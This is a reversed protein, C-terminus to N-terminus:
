RGGGELPPPEVGEAEMEDIREEYRERMGKKQRNRILWRLIKSENVGVIIDNLARYVSPDNVLQAVTGNGSNIKETVLRLNEIMAELDASVKTAYEEDSLLKNLLGEGERIETVLDGLEGTTTELNGVAGSFRQSLEADHILDALLGEGHEVSDLLAELRAVASEVREALTPDNFLRGLTGEGSDIKGLISDLSALTSRLSETMEEGEEDGATLEGLLGEGREMRQLINRLSVSIAAVNDVVDEGSALLRDVDTQPAAEIEGGEPVTPADPSGSTIEVYKDGLLGLSKIRALSDERIRSRYREDVSLYVRIKQRTIEEPLVIDDVQGVNVGDLQVSAGRSLGSTSGFEVWYTNKSVFLQDRDGVLFVGVAFVAAAAVVLLGVKIERQM